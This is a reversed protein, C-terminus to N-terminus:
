EAGCRRMANSSWTRRANPWSSAFFANSKASKMLPPANVQLRGPWSTRSREAQWISPSATCTLKSADKGARSRAMAVRSNSSINKVTSGRM